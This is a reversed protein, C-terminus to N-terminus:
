PYSIKGVLDINTRGPVGKKRYFQGGGEGELQVDRYRTGKLSRASHSRERMAM